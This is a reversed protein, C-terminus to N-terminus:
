GSVETELAEFESAHDMDPEEILGPMDVESVDFGEWNGKWDQYNTGADGEQWKESREDYYTEMDAVIEDRFTEMDALLGNYKEIAPNLTAEIESNVKNVAERVGDAAKNLAAILEDRTKNQDKSLRNM